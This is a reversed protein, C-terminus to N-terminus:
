YGSNNPKLNPDNSIAVAPVPFLLNYGNDAINMNDSAQPRSGATEGVQYSRLALVANKGTDGSNYWRRLDYLRHGEAFLEVRREAFIKNTFNDTTIDTGAVFSNLGRKVRLENLRSVGNPYGQAEASILYLEAIRIVPWPDAGDYRPYKICDWTSASSTSLYRISAAKRTDGTEFANILSNDLPFEFRGLDGVGPNTVSNVLNSRLFWGPSGSDTSTNNWQLIIEKSTKAQWIDAFNTALTFKGSAIVEEALQAARTKDQVGTPAILLIRALFAKAAIKSVLSPTTYDPAYVQAYEADEKILKWVEKEPSRAVLETTVEKLIPADGWLSVIQLYNWARLLRAQAIISKATTTTSDHKAIEAILNNSLQVNKFYANWWSNVYSNSTTISLNDMEILDAWTRAKINDAALDQAVYPLGMSLGQAGNYVGILLANYDNETISSSSVAATPTFDLNSQCSFLSIIALLAYIKFHIKNM